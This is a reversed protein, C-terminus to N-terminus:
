RGSRKQAARAHPVTRLQPPLCPLVARTLSAFYGFWSQRKRDWPLGYAQRLSAPLLGTTIFAFLPRGPRLIWSRPHLIERALARATVSVVINPGNLMREIYLRFDDLSPPVEAPPVDFLTALKKTDEYYQIKDAASLPAVFHEYALLASDVLTAHVWLLLEPELASYSVAPKGDPDAIKGRVTGHIEKVRSLSGRAQGVEDFVVSWMANMTQRLRRLPDKQFRSHEAVGAAVKPHAIQMLLARGGALLLVMERDVRWIVSDPSFFQGPM